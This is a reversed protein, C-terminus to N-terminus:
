RVAGVVAFLVNGLAHPLIFGAASRSRARIWGFAVGTVLAWAYAEPPLGAQLAVGLATTVAVATGTGAWRALAGFAVGRLWLEVAAAVVLQRVLVVGLDAGTPLAGVPVGYARFSWVMAAWLGVVVAGAAVAAAGDSWARPRAPLPRVVVGVAAGVAGVVGPWVWWRLPARLLVAAAVGPLLVAALADGGGPRAWAARLSPLLRPVSGLATAAAAALLLGDGYRAYPTHSGATGVAGTLVAEQGPPVRATIRGAPDVIFSLGTNAARVVWRGQEVARFVAHAAHQAPGATGDFWADNTLVALLDAGGRVLARSAGPFISEFCIAVGVQGAPTWLPDHRRGPVIGAEGFAVLRVKDYRGVALGSPAVAVAINSRGGELSTAIITARAEHAWRGVEELAGQPGFLDGPVATEPMVILEAGSRAAQVVLRRLRDRHQESLAPDFKERQPVNPQVAAVRLTAPGPPPLTSGWLVVAGLLALPLIAPAPRRRVLAGSVAASVLAVVFSVGFVGAVRAVQVVAPWRSQTLGLAAWPFGFVGSSRLLELAAWAVATPWPWWWPPRRGRALWSAVAAFAGGYLALYATLLVWPLWGFVRLWLLTGGYGVLGMLYGLGFARRVPQGRAAVLLPTLSIWALWGADAPPFSAAFLAGSAAAAVWPLAPRDARPPPLIVGRPRSM